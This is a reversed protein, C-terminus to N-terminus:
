ISKLLNITFHYNQGLVKVLYEGDALNINGIIINSENNLINEKVYVVRGLVDYFTITIKESIPKSFEFSVKDKFPNPYAILKINTQNNLNTGVKFSSQQFGQEVRFQENTFNGIASQQGISQRVTYGNQITVHNGQSSIMEHHIEQAHTTFGFFLFIIKKVM